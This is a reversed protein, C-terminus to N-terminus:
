VSELGSGVLVPSSTRARIVQKAEHPLEHVTDFRQAVRAREFTSGSFDARSRCFERPVFSAAWIPDSEISIVFSDASLYFRTLELIRSKARNSGTENRSAVALGDTAQM